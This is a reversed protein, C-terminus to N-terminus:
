LPIVQFSQWVYEQILAHFDTKSIPWSQYLVSFTYTSLTYMYILMHVHAYAKWGM